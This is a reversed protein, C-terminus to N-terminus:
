RNRNVEISELFQLQVAEIYWTQQIELPIPTGELNTGSCGVPGEYLRVWGWVPVKKLMTDRIAWGDAGSPSSM